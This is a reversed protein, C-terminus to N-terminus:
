FGVAQNRAAPLLRAIKTYLAEPSYGQASRQEQQSAHPVFEDQAGFRILPQQLQICEDQILEAIASGFGGAIAHDELTCCIRHATLAHRILETDLPKAFRANIVTSSVGFTEQLKDAVLLADYVLPGLAIFAIDSGEMLVEGVGIPLKEAPGALSIGIGNGRPYRLAIPGDHKVATHVMHRLENEDKPAMITMNPICRMYAIDFLGQHTEGDNGVVGARDLAFVVPLNQICVDHVIQDFGRQLFTSYIACVPKKGECALGAAFTVAHQESIGVDFFSEPYAKQFKDLGTGGPMAATIGIIADDAARESILASAFVNTYSPPAKTKPIGNSIFAGRTRDFPKVGHWTLPDAEAPTYGKGKVTIAHVLVPVDQEKANKLAQHIAAMNHGDVPGIYRFGFASFLIAPSSLFGQTAEEARDIAKYIADPIIGKEHLNKFVSRARTSLESTASRSFFWSIAGVNPAISMENDNLVVVLNGLGLEGAHNLAEFAMGSTLAGDGIVAVVHQKSKSNRLAAAMGVAASISTGAHGAGFCDYESESRKLFGSLGDKKRISALSQRRGTLMKHIYAQHGVDWILRDSPTNFIAHLAVTLETTGLSSAFHGGSSAVSEILEDRLEEAITELQEISCTRLDDPLTLKDLLITM